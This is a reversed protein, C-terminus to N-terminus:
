VDLEQLRKGEAFLDPTVAVVHQGQQLVWLRFQGYCVDYFRRLFTKVADCGFEPVLHSSLCYLKIVM